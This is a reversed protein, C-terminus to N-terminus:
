KYVLVVVTGIAAVAIVFILVYDDATPKRM